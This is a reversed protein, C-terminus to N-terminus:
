NDPGGVEGKSYNVYYTKGDKTKEELVCEADEVDKYMNGELAGEKQFKEAKVPDLWSSSKSEHNLYYARGKADYLREWPWPLGETFPKKSPHLWSTTKTNHDLYYTKGTASDKEATIHEPLPDDQSQSTSPEAYSPVESSTNPTTSSMATNPRDPPNFHHTIIRPSTQSVPLSLSPEQLTRSSIFTVPLCRTHRLKLQDLICDLGPDRPAAPAEGRAQLARSLQSGVSGM